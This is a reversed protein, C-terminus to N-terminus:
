DLLDDMETLTFTKIASSAVQIFNLIHDSEMQTVLAEESAWNEYTTFIKPNERCQHMRFSLCGALKRTPEILKILESKLFDVKGEKCETSTMIVFSRSM